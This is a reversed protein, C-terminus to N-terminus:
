AWTATAPDVGHARANAEIAERLWAALGPEEADYYAAFRPDDTYGRAILVHKAHTVPFFRGISRTRHLEVLAAAREGDPTEGARKAEALQEDIGDIEARVQQMEEGSMRDKVRQSHEWDPTGGWRQEAEEAFADSWQSGFAGAQQEPTMPTNMERAEMMRDVARVMRQLHAIRDTLLSRQASLHVLEDAEPDDILDRIRALPFGLERYVLVQHLRAVDARGYLRYGGASRASPVVLDLDHWHRLTRVSIGVLHAVTGVTMGADDHGTESTM